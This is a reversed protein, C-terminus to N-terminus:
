VDKEDRDLEIVLATVNDKGGAEEAAATLAAAAAKPDQERELIAAIQHNALVDTLGDSCLLLRQGRLLQGVECHPELIMEEEPIGLFQVLHGDKGPRVPLGMDALSQTETHDKSIQRLCGNAYIYIRSDGLNYAHYEAGLMVVLALTAGMAGDTGGSKRVVLGNTVHVYEAVLRDLPHEETLFRRLLCSLNEVGIWAAVEGNEQGGMGDCVAYVAGGMSRKGYVASNDAQELPKCLGDLCFNDENNTRRGM